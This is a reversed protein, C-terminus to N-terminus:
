HEKPVNEFPFATSQVEHKAPDEQGLVVVSISITAHGDPVHLAPPRLSHTFQGM